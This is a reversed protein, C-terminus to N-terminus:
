IVKSYEYLDKIVSEIPPEQVLMDSIVSNSNIYDIFSNLEVAATDLELKIKYDSTKESITIGEINIQPLVKRTSLTIIKKNGLYSRLADISKDAVIEGSNIVIVRQALHEIDGMDHTTLIFTIGKKNMESIFDRIKDKAVFDIGLTPEDLFVVKPGHLMCMIFECKMREGLSLQRTPKKIISQVGLLEVMESLNKNFVPDPISYIAKNMYFADVPPVDFYLQTKQGFM